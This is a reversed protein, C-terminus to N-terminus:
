VLDDLTVNLAEALRRMTATPGTRKGNEIDSLYGPSLDAIGALGRVSLGRYERLVKVPHEGALLRGVLADPFSEEDRSAAFARAAELEEVRESLRDREAKIAEFEARGVVEATAVGPPLFFAIENKKVM